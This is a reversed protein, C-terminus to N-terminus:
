CPLSVAARGEFIKELQYRRSGKVFVAGRWGAFVEAMVDHAAAIQIQRSFDGQDLVGACVDSAWPGIVLLRDEPELRLSRGLARHHAAAEAGLEEMGGLVYLRPLNAPAVETFTALADAMSAPNANYCDVYVLRGDSERIEGRLKGPAWARLREQILDAPIGLWLAACIALAANQAMGDSVRRFVFGQPPPRGYALSLATEGARHTVAFYV